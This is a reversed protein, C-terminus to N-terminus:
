HVVIVSCDSNIRRFDILLDSEVPDIRQCCPNVSVFGSEKSRLFLASCHYCHM